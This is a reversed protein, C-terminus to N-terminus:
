FDSVAYIQPCLSDSISPSYSINISVDEKYVDSLICNALALVSNFKGSSRPTPQESRTLKTSHLAELNKEIKNTIDKHDNM